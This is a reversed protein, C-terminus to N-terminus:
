LSFSRKCYNIWYDHDLVLSRMPYMMNPQQFFGFETCFQWSWQRSAKNEDVTTNTIYAEVDYENANMNFADPGALNAVIQIPAIDFWEHELVTCVYTRNGYQVAGAWIDSIFSMFDAHDINKNTVNFKTLLENKETTNGFLFIRQIDNTVDSIEQHCGGLNKQTQLYLDMDYETYQEIANIVGSSSWAAKVTDPYVNKFWAVLAGPYSGGVILWDNSSTTM